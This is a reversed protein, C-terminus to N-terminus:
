GGEASGPAAAILAKEWVDEPSIAWRIAYIIAETPERPVVAMGDPIATPAATYLPVTFPERQTLRVIVRHQPVTNDILRCADLLGPKIWMDAEGVRQNSLAATDFLQSFGRYPVNEGYMEQLLEDPKKRGDGDPADPVPTTASKAADEDMYAGCRLCPVFERKDQTEVSTPCNPCHLVRMNVGEGQSGALAARERREQQHYEYERQAREIVTEWKVGVGFTTSRITAPKDLKPVEVEQSGDISAVLPTIRHADQAEKNLWFKPSSANYIASDVVYRLPSYPESNGDLREILWAQVKPKGKGAQIARASEAPEYTASFIDPKCPYFEGQVGKIIWDGNMATMQGELTNIYFWCRNPDNDECSGNFAGGAGGVFRIAAEWAEHTGDLQIAEIVVPRKRYKAADGAPQPTPQTTM